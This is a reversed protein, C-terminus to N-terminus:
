FSTETDLQQSETGEVNTEDLQEAAKDLDQDSNIPQVGQTQVTDTPTDDTAQNAMWVRWGILGILAVIALVVVVEVISFGKNRTM